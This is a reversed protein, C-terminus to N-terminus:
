LLPKYGTEKKIKNIRESLQSSISSIEDFMSNIEDIDKNSSNKLKINLKEVEMLYKTDILTKNIFSDKEAVKKNLEDRIKEM